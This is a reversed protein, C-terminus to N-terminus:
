VFISITVDDHKVVHGSITKNGFKACFRNVKNLKNALVKLFWEIPTDAKHGTTINYVHWGKASTLDEMQLGLAEGDVYLMKEKSFKIVTLDNYIKKKEEADEPKKSEVIDYYYTTNSAEHKVLPEIERESKEPDLITFDIARDLCAWWNAMYSPQSILPKLSDVHEGGYPTAAQVQELTPFPLPMSRNLLATTYLARKDFWDRVREAVIDKWLVVADFSCVGFSELIHKIFDPNRTSIETKLPEICNQIALMSASSIKYVRFPCYEVLAVFNTDGLMDEINSIIRSDYKPFCKVAAEMVKVPTKGILWRSVQGEKFYDTPVQRTQWNEDKVIEPCIKQVPTQLEVTSETKPIPKEKPQEPEKIEQPKPQTLPAPHSYLPQQQQPAVQQTMGTNAYATMPAPPPLQQPVPQAYMPQGYMPQGYVPQGYMPQGYAPYGQQPIQGNRQYYFNNYMSLVRESVIKDIYEKNPKNNISHTIADAVTYDRHRSAWSNVMVRYAEGYEPGRYPAMFRSFAEDVANNVENTLTISPM